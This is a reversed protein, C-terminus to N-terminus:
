ADGAALEASFFELATRTKTQQEGDLDIGHKALYVRLETAVQFAENPLCKTSLEFIRSGDPYLWMEAVMKRKLEPPRWKLKLVFIPGLASLDNLEVGAPAHDAFLARQDKTYLRRVNRTGLLVNRIDMSDAPCKLRGSCVYGGPIADVEVGFGPLDRVEPPVDDPRVPRLKVVSDGERGQIRRARVVVGAKDLALDPTDFFIVQRIQADLPDLELGRIAARQKASPVTLKLEVTDSGKLLDMMEGLQADSLARRSPTKTAM